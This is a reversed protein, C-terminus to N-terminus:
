LSCHFSRGTALNTPAPSHLLERWPGARRDAQYEFSRSVLNMLFALVQVSVPHQHM